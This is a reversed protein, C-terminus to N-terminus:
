TAGLKFCLGTVPRLFESMFDENVIQTICPTNNDRSQEGYLTRCRQHTAVM